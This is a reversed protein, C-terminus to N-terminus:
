SLHICESCFVISQVSVADDNTVRRYRPSGLALALIERCYEPIENADISSRALNERLFHARFNPPVIFSGCNM